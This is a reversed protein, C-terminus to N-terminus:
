IKHFEEPIEGHINKGAAAAAANDYQGFGKVAQQRGDLAPDVYKEYWAALKQRLSQIREQYDAAAILNNEEDPDKILDYYEEKDAAYHVILKEKRNRIMRSPGYEDFVVIHGEATDCTFAERISKGPRKDDLIESPLQLYDILTPLIDYQSHMAEVKVNEPVFGPWSVICPIKVSTDYMNAPYTGNGKGWIGHHGMNMGNDSMFIVLTKDLDVHELVKGIGADMATVAAYYGRLLDERSNSVSPMPASPVQDKHLPLNPVSAFVTDKYLDLVAQPHNGADWPSHPATYNIALYFPKTKTKRMELYNIAKETILDTLYEGERISIEGDEVVDPAMYSTGGRAITFWYDAFGCQPTLSDGLHWKGCLAIDYGNDALLQTYTRQGALYQVPKSDDVFYQHQQLYSPLKDKDVNGARIWDWVGHASPIKGTLLSARAPSCVPSACFFNQFNAGRAALKDLNPTKIETNGNCGLAWYGMDDALIFIIDPKNVPKDNELCKNM